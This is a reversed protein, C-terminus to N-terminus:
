PFEVILDGEIPHLTEVKFEDPHCEFTTAIANVIRLPLQSVTAARPGLLVIASRDLLTNSSQLDDNPPFFISLESARRQILDLSLMPATEWNEFDM